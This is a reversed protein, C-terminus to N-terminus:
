MLFERHWPLFAPGRHAGNRFNADRPEYSLITPIMVLHHWHVYKDYEGRRKLELLARVLTEKEADTITNVSKRKIM